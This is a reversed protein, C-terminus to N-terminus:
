GSVMHKRHYKFLHQTKQSKKVASILVLNFSHAWMKISLFNLILILCTSSLPSPPQRGGKQCHVNYRNNIYALSDSARNVSFKGLDQVSLNGCIKGRAVVAIFKYVYFHM